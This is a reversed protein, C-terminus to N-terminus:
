IKPAFPLLGLHRAQKIALALRKQQKSTLATRKRGLIRARDTTFRMLKEYNKYDIPFDLVPPPRRTITRTRPQIKKKKM